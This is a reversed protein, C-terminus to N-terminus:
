EPLRPSCEELNRRVWDRFLAERIEEGTIRSQEDTRQFGPILRSGGSYNEGQLEEPDPEGWLQCINHLVCCAVALQSAHILHVNMCRLIKWRTKLLKFAEQICLFGKLLQEDFARRLGDGAGFPTMCFSEIPYGKWAVIFPKVPVGTGGVPVIPEQLAVGDRIKQHLSGDGDGGGCSVHWFVKDTDCVAQLLVSHFKYSPASYSSSSYYHRAPKFYLKLYTGDLAGCFNPLNTLHEFGTIIRALRDGTPIAVYRSYLKNADALASTVVLTYKGVTSAGVDYKEAVQRASLGHALRFIVLAVAREVEHPARAFVSCESQIFPRLEEVVYIFCAYSMSYKRRFIGDRAASDLRVAAGRSIRNWESAGRPLKWCHRQARKFGEVEEFLASSSPGYFSAAAILVLKLFAASVLTSTETYLGNEQSPGVDRCLETSLVTQLSSFCMFAQLGLTNDEEEEEEDEEDEERIRKLTNNDEM